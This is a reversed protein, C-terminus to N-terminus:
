PLSGPRKDEDPKHSDKELMDIKREIDEMRKILDAEVNEMKAIMQNMLAEVERAVEHTSAISAAANTDEM